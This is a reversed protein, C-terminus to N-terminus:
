AAPGQFGAGDDADVQEALGGVPGGEGADGVLM